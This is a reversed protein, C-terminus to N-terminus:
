LSVVPRTRNGGEPNTVVPPHPFGRLGYNPTREMSFSLGPNLDSRLFFANLGTMEAYVLDYGKERGLAELARISAGWTSTMEAVDNDQKEVVLDENGFDSNYECCIIHPRWKESLAKWVWYDQGDIDIDLIGFEEPVNNSELLANVTEPKVTAHAATVRKRRKQRLSLENFTTLDAEFIVGSWGFVEWWLRTNSSWGEGGGISVFYPTPKLFRVLDYIIGDEGNQSFVRFERLHIDTLDPQNRQSLVSLANYVKDRFLTEKLEQIAQQVNEPM